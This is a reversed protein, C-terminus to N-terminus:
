YKKEKEGDGGMTAKQSIFIQCLSNENQKVYQRNDKAYM